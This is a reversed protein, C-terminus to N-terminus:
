VEAQGTNVAHDAQQGSVKYYYASNVKLQQKLGQVVQESGARTLVSVVMLLEEGRTYLGLVVRLM